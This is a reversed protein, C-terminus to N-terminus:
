SHAAVLARGDAHAIAAGIAGGIARGIAGRQPGGIPGLDSAGIALGLPPRNAADDASALAWAVAACDLQPETSRHSARETSHEDHIASGDARSFATSVAVGLAACVSSGVAEHPLM